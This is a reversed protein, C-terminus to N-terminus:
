WAYWMLFFMLLGGVAGALLGVAGAELKMKWGITSKYKGMVRELEEVAINANHAGAIFNKNQEKIQRLHSTIDRDVKSILKKEFDALYHGIQEDIINQTRKQGM